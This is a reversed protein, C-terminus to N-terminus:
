KLVGHGSSAVVCGEDFVRPTVLRVKIDLKSNEKGEAQGETKSPVSEVTDLADALTQFPVAADAVVYLTRNERTSYIASLRAALSNREEPELNLFLKGADSVHLVILRDVADHECHAGALGVYLGRPAHFSGFTMLGTVAFALLPVALLGFAPLDSFRKAPRLRAGRFHRGTQQREQFAEGELLDVRIRLLNYSCTALVAV